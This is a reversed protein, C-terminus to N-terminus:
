KPITWWVLDGRRVGMKMLINKVGLYLFVWSAGIVSKYISYKPFDYFWSNTGASNEITVKCFFSLVIKSASPGRVTGNFCVPHCWALCPEDNRKIPPTATMRKKHCRAHHLCLDQLVSIEFFFTSLWTEWDHFMVRCLGNKWLNWILRTDSYATEGMTLCCNPPFRLCDLQLIPIM